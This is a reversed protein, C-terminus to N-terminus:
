EAFWLIHRCQECIRADAAGSWAEAGFFAATRSVLLAERQSFRDHGCLPCHILRGHAILYGEAELELIDEASAEGRAAADCRRQTQQKAEAKEAEAQKRDANAQCEACLGSGFRQLFSLEKGCESCESM